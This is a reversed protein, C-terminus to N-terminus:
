MVPRAGVDVGVAGGMGLLHASDDIVTVAHVQEVPINAEYSARCGPLYRDGRDSIFATVL